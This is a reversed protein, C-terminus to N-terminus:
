MFARCPDLIFPVPCFVGCETKLIQAKPYKEYLKGRARCSNKAIFFETQVEANDHIKFFFLYRMKM